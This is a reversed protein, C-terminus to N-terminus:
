IEMRRKAPGYPAGLKRRVLMTQPALPITGIVKLGVFDEFDNIGRVRRNIYELFFALAVGVLLGALLAAGAYIERRPRDPVGPVFAPSVLRAESVANSKIEADKLEKAVIAYTADAVNVDAQRLQLEREIVPLAVLEARKEDLIKLLRARKKEDAQTDFKGVALSQELKALEVTLDSIVKLKADYEEKYLFIGHSSKYERLNERAGVLRTRSQDLESKLRDASDKAESSRMRELFDIFLSAMTNAVDAATQPDDGSYKIEFVYTDEYSKLTLGKGVDKVAKTFPDDKLLKGYKFIAWADKAGEMLDDTLAKLSDYIQAFITDGSPEKKTKEDLKLKRVVEAILAPSQIIQIYTKSASEVVPTQAVPFGMVEKGSNTQEIKIPNHPRVLVTAAADYKQPILSSVFSIGYGALTTVICLVAILYVHRRLVDFLAIVEM